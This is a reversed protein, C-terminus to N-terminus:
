AFKVNKKAAQFNRAMRARQERTFNDRVQEWIASKVTM